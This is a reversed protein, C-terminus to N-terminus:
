PSAGCGGSRPTSPPSARVTAPCVTTARTAWCSRACYAGQEPLPDHRRQRLETGVARLTAQWRRRMTQRLVTFRGKRTKSCTHTFALFNFTEPKGDGRDRRHRDAYRGFEILHTKDPHLTLGFRAFRERLETLFRHGGRSARIRRRFRRRFARRGCRRAGRDSAMAPGLPRLRLAPLRQGTASQDRPHARSRGSLVPPLNLSNETIARWVGRGLLPIPGARYPQDTGRPPGM